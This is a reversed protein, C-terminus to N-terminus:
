KTQRKRKKRKRRVKKIIQWKFLVGVCQHPQVGKEYPVGADRLLKVAEPSVLCAKAQEKAYPDEDYFGVVKQRVEVGALTRSLYVDGINL